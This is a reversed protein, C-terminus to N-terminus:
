IINIHSNDFLVNRKFIDITEITKNKNTKFRSVKGDCCLDFEINKGNLLEKYIELVNIGREFAYHKISKNPIGKLRIHHGKVIEGKNNKGELIDIYSKKGVFISEVAKVNNANKLEFDSNFKGMENGILVRNYKKMYENELLKIKNKEIHISDTDTYFMNIKLDEALVMVENMIRKSMSLIEVGCLINNYHDDIPKYCKIKYCKIKGYKDILEKDTNHIPIIEQIFNYNKKVFCEYDIENVFDLRTEFPKLITKGYCSNLLLKYVEQIPNGNKKEEIRKNFLTTIVDGLKNNRGENWYYGRVIEYEVQQFNVMDELSIKDVIMKKYVMDNTFIRNGDKDIHNLLPFDLKKGVNKILIELVYTTTKTLDITSNYIKPKGIAFGNLRKMASSYLSSADIADLFMNKVYWKENRRTMTRGGVMALSIFERIHRGLQYVGEYCGMKKLYADGIQPLSVYYEIDLGTIDNIWKRFIYWGEYLVLCDIKVYYGSYILMDIYDGKFAGAEKANKIFHSKYIEYDDKNFEDGINESEYQIKLGNDIEDLTYKYHEQKKAMLNYPMIEKNQKLNFMKGFDKLPKSIFAYSDQIKIRINKGFYNYIGEACITMSGREISSFHTLYQFIFNLDYGANHAILRIGDYSEIYKCIINLLDRVCNDGNFLMVDVGDYGCAQYAKHINDTHTELDIIVSKFRLIRQKYEVKEIIKKEKNYKNYSGDCKIINANKFMNNIFKNKYINLDGIEEKELKEYQYDLTTINNLNEELVNSKIKNHFQSKYLEENFTIPKLIDNRKVMWKVVEFNTTWGIRVNKNMRFWDKNNIENKPIFHTKDLMSWWNNIHQINDYNNLAYKTICVYDINFYHNAVCAIKIENKNKNGYYENNRDSYHISIYLDLKEVIEKVKHIPIDRSLCLCKAQNLKLEDIGAQELANIFCNNKVKDATFDTFIQYISLDIPLNHTYPFWGGQKKPKIINSKDIRVLEFIGDNKIVEILEKDSGYQTQQTDTFLQDINAILLQITRNNLAYTFNGSNILIYDNHQVRKLISIIQKKNRIRIRINDNDGKLFQKLKKLQKKKRQLLRQQHERNILDVEDNYVEILHNYALENSTFEPNDRRFARISRYGVNTLLERTHGRSTNIRRIPENRIEDNEM